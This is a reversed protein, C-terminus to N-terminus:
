IEIDIDQTEYYPTAWQPKQIEEEIFQTGDDIHGFPVVDDEIQKMKQKFIMEKLNIDTM